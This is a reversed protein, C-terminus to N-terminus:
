LEANQGDLISINLDNHEKRNEYRGNFLELTLAIGNCAQPQGSHELFNFNGSKM